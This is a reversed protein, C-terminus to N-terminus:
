RRMVLSSTASPVRIVEEDSVAETNPELGKFKVEGELTAAGDALGSFGAHPRAEVGQPAPWYHVPYYDWTCVSEGRTHRCFERVPVSPWLTM